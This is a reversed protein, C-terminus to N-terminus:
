RKRTGPSPPPPWRAGDRSPPGERVEGFCLTRAAQALERARRRRLARRLARSLAPDAGSEEAGALLREWTYSNSPVRVQAVARLDLAPFTAARGLQGAVELAVMTRLCKECRGCNVAEEQVEFCVRLWRRAAPADVVRELKETRSAELGDHVIELNETSWLPDVLPHSGLRALNGYTHTSPIIVRRYRSAALLAVTALAPGHYDGWTFRPESFSRVDSTVELLPLGLDAAAGRVSRGVVEAMRCWSPPADFGWVYILEDIAERHKLVSYFSDVGGTFFCAVRGGSAAPVGGPADVAVRHLWPYWSRWVDQIVEVGTLLSPSVPGEVVVDCGAQMAPLLLAALGADGRAEPVVGPLQWTLRAHDRGLAVPVVATSGDLEMAGVLGRARPMV